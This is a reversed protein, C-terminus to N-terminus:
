PFALSSARASELAHVGGQPGMADACDLHFVADGGRIGLKAAEGIRPKRGSRPVARSTRAPM